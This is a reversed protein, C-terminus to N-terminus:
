AFCAPTQGLFQLYEVFFGEKPPSKQNNKKTLMRKKGIALSFL